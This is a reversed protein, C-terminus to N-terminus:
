WSPGGGVIVRLYPGGISASPADRVPRDDMRWSGEFPAVLYGLRVGVMLGRAWGGPLLEAGGGLDLVAGGRNMVVEGGGGAATDPRAYLDPNALVEDFGVEAGDRQIWVGMGGGGVGLRPYIRVRPSVKMAYGVGLTGYGGGLGVDRGQHEHEDMILGHWEGGLMVGGDLLLYAGIAVGAATRGFTPYGGAALSGDLDGTGISSVGAAVYGVVAGGSGGGSGQARAEAAGLAMALLAAGTVRGAMGAM